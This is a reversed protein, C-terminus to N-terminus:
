GNELVEKLMSIKNMFRYNHPEFEKIFRIIQKKGCMRIQYKPNKTYPSSQDVTIRTLKYGLSILFNRIQEIIKRSSLGFSVYSTSNELSYKTIYLYGDTDFIGRIFAILLKNDHIIVKPITLSLAKKGFPFEFVHNFFRGIKSSNIEIGYSGGNFNKPKIDINFVKIFLPAVFNDYYEKEDIPNGRIRIRIGRSKEKWMTGDGAIIGACESVEESISSPIIEFRNKTIFPRRMDRIHYYILRRDVGFIKSLKIQGLGNEYRKRIEQIQFDSLRRM